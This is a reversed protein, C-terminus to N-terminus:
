QNPYIFITDNKVMHEISFVLKIEEIVDNLPQNDITSTYKLDEISQDSIIITQKYHDALDVMVQSLPCQNFELIGTKWSLYNPNEIATKTIMENELVAKENKVLLVKSTTDDSKYFAVKGSTVHVTTMQSSSDELINFSTGLVEINANHATQVTFPKKENRVVEFYAEGKLNVLRENRSFKEPYSIESNANIYVKSGDSLIVEAGNLETAHVIMMPDSTLLHRLVITLGVAMILLAAIRAFTSFTPNIKRTIPHITKRDIKSKVKEWDDSTDILDFDNIANGSEWIKQLKHFHDQNEKKESIWSKIKENEAESTQQQLYRVLVTDTIIHESQNKM